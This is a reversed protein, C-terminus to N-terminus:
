YACENDPQYVFYNDANHPKRNTVAIFQLLVNNITFYFRQSFNFM